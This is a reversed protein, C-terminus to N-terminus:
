DLHLFENSALLLRCCASWRDLDEGPYDALFGNAWQRDSETPARQLAIAYLRDLREQPTKLELLRQALATAQEHFFPDNFFFLSQTPVTTVQRM